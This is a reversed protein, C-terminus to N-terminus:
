LENPMSSYASELAAKTEEWAERQEGICRQLESRSIQVNWPKPLNEDELRVMVKYTGEGALTVRGSTASGRCVLSGGYMLEFGDDRLTENFTRGPSTTRQMSLGSCPADPIYLCLDLKVINM